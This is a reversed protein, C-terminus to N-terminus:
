PFFCKFRPFVNDRIFEYIGQIVEIRWKSGCKDVIFPFYHIEPPSPPFDKNLMPVTIEVTYDNIDRAIMDPRMDFGVCQGSLTIIRHKDCDSLEHLVWLPHFTPNPAIYPQLSEIVQRADNPVHQLLRNIDARASASNMNWIPFATRSYPRAHNILALQWVINDLASHLNHLVDGVVVGWYGPIDLMEITYVYAPQNPYPQGRCTFPKSNRWLCLVEDLSHIHEAAREIKM